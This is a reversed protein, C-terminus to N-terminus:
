KFFSLYNPVLKLLLTRIHTETVTPFMASIKTVAQDTTSPQQSEVASQQRKLSNTGMM